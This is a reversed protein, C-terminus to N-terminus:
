SALGSNPGTAAVDLERGSESQRLRLGALVNLFDVAVPSFAPMLYLSSFAGRLAPIFLRFTEPHIHLFRGIASRNLPKKGSDRVLDPMSQLKDIICAGASESAM